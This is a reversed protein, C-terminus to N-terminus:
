TNEGKKRGLNRKRVAFFMSFGRLFRSGWTPSKHNKRSGLLFFFFTIKVTVVVTRGGHHQTLVWYIHHCLRLLINPNLKLSVDSRPSPFNFFSFVGFLLNREYRGSGSSWETGFVLISTKSDSILGTQDQPIRMRHGVAKSRCLPTRFYKPHVGFQRAVYSIVVPMSTSKRVFATSSIASIYKEPNRMFSSKFRRIFRACVFLAGLLGCISVHSVVLSILM